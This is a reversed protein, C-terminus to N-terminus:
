LYQNVLKTCLGTAPLYNDFNNNVIGKLLNPWILTHGGMGHMKDFAPNLGKVASHSKYHGWM